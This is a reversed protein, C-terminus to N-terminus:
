QEAADLVNEYFTLASTRAYLEELETMDPLRRVIAVLDRAVWELMIKPDHRAEETFRRGAINDQEMHQQLYDDTIDLAVLKDYSVKLDEFSARLTAPDFEGQIRDVCSRLKAIVGLLLERMEKLEPTAEYAARSAFARSM